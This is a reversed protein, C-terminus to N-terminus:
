QVTVSGAGKAPCIAVFPCDRCHPGATAPFTEARLLDAARALGARLVTREPGDDPHAPQGQVKAVSSEDDIGLQVLEAGGSAMPRGAAEDLAGADVAYQYLALQLNAAVAPGSPVTRASKFDVVVVRGADDVELRDAFGTLMVQRGDVEVTSQFRQEAGLVQRPNDLHWQVFRGVAKRIRALERQRSWPTRFALRDWIAEVEAMLPDVEAPLDGSAVREALAHLVQGLNASQHVASVGGAEREFFWQAPCLLISELM